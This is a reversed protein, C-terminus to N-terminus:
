AAIHHASIGYDSLRRAIETKRHCRDPDAEMCMLCVTNRRATEALGAIAQEYIESFGGLHDGAWQYGIGAEELAAAVVKKNFGKVRSFPRSRVDILLEVGHENLLGILQVPTLRQYGITYIATM